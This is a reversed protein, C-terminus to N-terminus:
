VAMWQDLPFNEPRPKKVEAKQKHQEDRAATAGHFSPRGCETIESNLALLV